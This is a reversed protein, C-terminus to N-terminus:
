NSFQLVTEHSLNLVYNESSCSPISSYNHYNLIVLTQIFIFSLKLLYSNDHSIIYGSKNKWQVIAFLLKCYIKM